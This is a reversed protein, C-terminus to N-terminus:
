HAASLPRLVSYADFRTDHFETIFVLFVTPDALGSEQAISAADAAAADQIYLRCRGEPLPFSATQGTFSVAFSTTACNKVLLAATDSLAQAKDKTFVIDNTAPFYFDCLVVEDFGLGRLETIIQMLYTITGESTPDLWYCYDSDMWLYGGATPLGDPVNNLGYYYDRLAPLRAIVYLNGSTLDSILADVASINLDSNRRTSVESSYYFNGYISKVDLMVPTGAPLTELQSRVAAIDKLAEEDIYYGHMQTLETTTIIVNEGDNYYIPVTPGPTPAVAEEGPAFTASLSLDLIANGDSTYVVFRELWMFWFVLMISLVLLILLVAIAIRKLTQRTRYSFIM